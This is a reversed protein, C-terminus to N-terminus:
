EILTNRVIYEKLIDFKTFDSIEKYNNLAKAFATSGMKNILFVMLPYDDVYYSEIIEKM